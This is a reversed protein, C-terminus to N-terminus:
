APTEAARTEAEDALFKGARHIVRALRMADSPALDFQLGLDGAANVTSSEAMIRVKGAHTTIRWTVRQPLINIGVVSSIQPLDRVAREAPTM